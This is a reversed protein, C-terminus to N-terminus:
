MLKEVPFSPGAIFSSEPKDQSNAGVDFVLALNAVAPVNDSKTAFIWWSVSGDLGSDERCNFSSLSLSIDMWRLYARLLELITTCSHYSQLRLVTIVSVFRVCFPWVLMFTRWIGKGFKRPFLFWRRGYLLLIIPSAFSCCEWLKSRLSNM